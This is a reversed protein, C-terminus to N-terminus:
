RWLTVKVKDKNRYLAIEQFLEADKLVLELADVTTNFYVVKSNYVKQISVDYGLHSAIINIDEETVLNCFEILARLGLDRLGPASKSMTYSDFLFKYKPLKSQIIKNTFVFDELEKISLNKPM